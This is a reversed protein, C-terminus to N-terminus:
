SSGAVLATRGRAKRRGTSKGRPGAERGNGHRRGSRRPNESSTRSLGPFPVAHAEMRDLYSLWEVGCADPREDAKDNGTVGKHAPCWQIESTIDPRTSGKRSHTSRALALSRRLWGDLPPRPTRPSRSGSQPRRGEHLQNWRGTIAACEADYLQPIQCM